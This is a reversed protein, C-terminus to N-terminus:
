INLQPQAQAWNVKSWHVMTGVVKAMSIETVTEASNGGIM